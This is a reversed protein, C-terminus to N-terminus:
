LSSSQRNARVCWGLTLRGKESSRLYRSCHEIANLINYKLVAASELVVGGGQHNIPFDLVLSKLATVFGEVDIKPLARVPSDLAIIPSCRYEPILSTNIFALKTTSGSKLFAWIRITSGM